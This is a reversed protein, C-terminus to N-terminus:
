KLIFFAKSIFCLVVSKWVAYYLETRLSKEWRWVCCHCTLYFLYGFLSVPIFSLALMGPVLFGCFYALIFGVLPLGSELDPGLCCRYSVSELLSVSVFCSWELCLISDPERCAALFQLPTRRRHLPNLLQGEAAQHLHKWSFQSRELCISPCLRM